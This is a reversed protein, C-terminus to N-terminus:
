SAKVTAAPAAAPTAAVAGKKHGRKNHKKGTKASKAKHNRPTRHKKTGTGGKVYPKAAHRKKSNKDHKADVHTDKSTANAAADSKAAGWAAATPAFSILTLSALLVKIGILNIIKM